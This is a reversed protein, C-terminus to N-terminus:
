PSAPGPGAAPRAAAPVVVFPHRKRFKQKGREVVVELTYNGPKLRSIDITRQVPTRPGPSPEDYRVSISGGGTFLRGIPGWGSPRTIRVETRYSEGAPIGGVEFFLELPVDARLSGAPNFYVTDEPTRLWRLNTNQSGVVLDSVAVQTGSIVTVTDLPSLLGAEGEQVAVRWSYQGPPLFVGIRGVLWEGRPVPQPSVFLTTSDVSHVVKGSALDTLAFRVRVPYMTGRTSPVARLSKGPVAWALHVLPRGDLQGAGLVEWHAEALPSPFELAYSDSETGVKISRRGDLRERDMLGMSGGGGAAILRGYIPAIQERSQLLEIADSRQTPTASGGRLSVAVDFGLVDYLSEVLKYDQVDERAVFHFILDGEPRAYRWTQNLPLNQHTVAARDTPEGHRIYVLGRDDYDVSYSRYREEIRYQRKTSVLRFNRRAYWMRRYHEAVREGSKRLSGADREAWFDALWTARARGTLSDLGAVESPMVLELLDGRMMRDVLTDGASAAEYYPVTAALKGVSLETRALEFRGLAPHIGTAIYARFAAASSDPDGVEREVRGRALLIDPHRGAETTASRRLAVLAVALRLNVRQQLATSTLDTLGRIFSPDVEASKAFYNAARTLRDKGFMTQLGAILALESDLIGYEALGLGYYPWPWDPHLDIAWQFETAADDYGTRRGLEGLRLALVGLRLHLMVSDREVRAVAIMQKEM